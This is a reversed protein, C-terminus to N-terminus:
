ILVLKFHKAAPDLDVRYPRVSGPSVLEGLRILSQHAQQLNGCRLEASRPVVAKEDVSLVSMDITAGAEDALANAVQSFPNETGIAVKAGVAADQNAGKKLRFVFFVLAFLAVGASGQFALKGGGGLPVDASLIAAGTFFAGAAGACFSCVFHIIDYHLPQLSVTTFFAKWLFALAVAAFIVGALFQMQATELM